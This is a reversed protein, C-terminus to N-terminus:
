EDENEEGRMDAGCNPCYKYKRKMEGNHFRYRHCASCRFETGGENNTSEEWKGKKPQVINRILKVYEKDTICGNRYLNKIIVKCSHPM